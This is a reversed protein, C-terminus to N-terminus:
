DKIRRGRKGSSRREKEDYGDIAVGIESARRPGKRRDEYHEYRCTCSGISCNKLPLAPAGRSLFRQGRLAKAADCARAGPVISVAHWPNVPKKVPPPANEEPEGRGFLAKARKFVDSM